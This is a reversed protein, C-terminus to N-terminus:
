FHRIVSEHIRMYFIVDPGCLEIGVFLSSNYSGLTFQAELPSKYRLTHPLDPFYPYLAQYLSAFM